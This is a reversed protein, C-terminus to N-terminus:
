LSISEPSIRNAVISHQKIPLGTFHAVSEIRNSETEVAWDGSLKGRSVRSCEAPIPFLKPESIPLPPPTSKEPFSTRLRQRPSSTLGRSFTARCLNVIGLFFPVVITINKREFSDSPSKEHPGNKRPQSSRNLKRKICLHNIRRRKRRRELRPVSEYCSFISSSWQCDRRLEFDPAPM